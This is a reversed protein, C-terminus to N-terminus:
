LSHFFSCPAQYQKVLKYVFNFIPVLYWYHYRASIDANYCNIFQCTFYEPNSEFTADTDDYQWLGVETFVQTSSDALELLIEM